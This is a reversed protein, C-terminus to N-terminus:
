RLQILRIGNETVLQYRTSYSTPIMLLVKDEFSGEYRLKGKMTYILCSTANYIIVNEGTFFIDDYETDFSI